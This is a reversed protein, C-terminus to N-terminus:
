EFTRVLRLKDVHFIKSHGNVKIVYTVENLRREVIGVDKYFSQWKPSRRKFRRPNYVRVEQGPCFTQQSVRRNYWTSAQEAARGLQDRTLRFCKDLRDIMESAYNAPTDHGPEIGDLLFDINWRAERGHFLFFPSFSTSSHETVNYCFTAYSVWKSWDRQSELMVQALIKNLVKHQAECAGNTQPRYGSTRLKRIGLLKFLELTLSAEFEGGLDTLIEHCLGFKLFIHEMIARAVTSAEKNRIPVAIAYKTFACIATFIYKYQDSSTPHPGTLDLSWREAPSGIIMPQLNGQKPPSGRHYANCKACCAIFVRLDRRWTHWYARQQLHSRCKMFKLHGALDAHILELFSVKMAAPLVVQYYQASGDARHFIRYIVGDHTVLSEFQQWLSRTAPSASQM